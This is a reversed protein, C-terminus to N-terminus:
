NDAATVDDAPFTIAFTSGKQLESEIGIRGGHRDVIRKVIALGLGTGPYKSPDHARYFVDFVKARAELPIGIGNDQVFVTWEQGRQESWIRVYPAEDDQFKIGNTILNEMLQYLLMYNGKVTPLDAFEVTANRGRIVKKHDALVDQVVNTLAIPEMPADTKGARSYELLSLVIERARKSAAAIYHIADHTGSDSSGRMRDILADAHSAIQNIPEQIDHSAVAAFRELAVNSRILEDMTRKRETMDEIALLILPPAGMEPTVQRANLTMFRQGISPFDHDVEYGFITTKQPLIQELLRRLEPINWQGNGLDYLRRDIAELPTVHFVRYFATNACLVRLDPDLVLLPERLTEVISEAFRANNAFQIRGLRLNEIAESNTM